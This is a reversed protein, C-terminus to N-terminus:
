RSKRRRGAGHVVRTCRGPRSRKPAAAPRACSAPSVPCGAPHARGAMPTLSMRLTVASDQYRGDGTAASPAYGGNLHQQFRSGGTPPHDAAVPAAAAFRWRRQRVLYSRLVRQVTWRHFPHGMRFGPVGPDPSPHLFSPNNARVEVFTILACGPRNLLRRADQFARNGTKKVPLAPKQGVM